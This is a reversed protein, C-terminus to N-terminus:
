NEANTNVNAYTNVDKDEDNNDKSDNGNSDVSIPQTKNTERDRLVNCM